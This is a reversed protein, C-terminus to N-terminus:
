SIQSGERRPPVGGLGGQYRKARAKTHNYGTVSPLAGLSALFRPDPPPDGLFYSSQVDLAAFQSITLPLLDATGQPGAGWVGRAVSREPRRIITVDGSATSIQM